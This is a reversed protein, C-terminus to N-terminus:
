SVTSFACLLDPSFSIVGQKSIVTIRPFFGGEFRDPPVEKVEVGLVSVRHCARKGRMEVGPVSHSLGKFWM